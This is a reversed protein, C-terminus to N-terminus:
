PNQAPSLAVAGDTWTVLRELDYLLWEVAAGGGPLAHERRACADTWGELVDEIASPGACARLRGLLAEDLEGPSMVRYGGGELAAIGLKGGLALWHTSRRPTLPSLGERQFLGELALDGGRARLVADIVARSEPEDLVRVRELRRRGRLEVVCCTQGFCLRRSTSLAELVHVPRRQLGSLLDLAEPVRARRQLLDVWYARADAGEIAAPPGILLGGDIPAEVLCLTGRHVLTLARPPPDPLGVFAVGLAERLEEPQRAWGGVRAVRERVWWPLAWSM